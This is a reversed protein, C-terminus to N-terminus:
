LCDYNIQNKGLLFGNNRVNENARIVGRRKEGRAMDHIFKSENKAATVIYIHIRKNKNNKITTKKFPIEGEAAAEAATPM